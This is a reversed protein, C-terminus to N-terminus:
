RAAKSPAKGTEKLMKLMQHVHAGMLRQFSALFVANVLHEFGTLM